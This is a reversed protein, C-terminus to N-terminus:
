SWPAKKSVAPDDAGVIRPGKGVVRAELGRMQEQIRAAIWSRHERPSLLVQPPPTGGAILSPFATSQSEGLGRWASTDIPEGITVEMSKGFPNPLWGGTLPHIKSMGRHYIPLLIPPRVSDMILRGVGWRFPLMTGDQHVKGEPYIHIWKGEDLRQVAFDMSAQYVGRGRIIPITKGCTFFVSLPDNQFCIEQAGLIWRLKDIQTTFVSTKLLGWLVPDDLTSIHNAVTILPVDPPRDLVARHLTDVNEVRLKTMRLFLCASAGVAWSTAVTGLRWLPSNLNIDRALPSIRPLVTM